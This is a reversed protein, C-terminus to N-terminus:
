GADATFRYGIRIGFTRPAALWYYRMWNLQTELQTKIRSNNELNQVYGEVWFPKSALDFRLRADTRTYGAQYDLPNEYQRYYVGGRYAFDLRPTFTGVSTELAYSASVSANWKPSRPLVNGNLNQLPSGDCTPGAGHRDGVPKFACFNTPNAASTSNDQSDFDATIETHLWGVNSRFELRDIPAWIWQLEIGYIQAEPANVTTQVNNQVETIFRNAFDYYFFTSNLRMRGDFLSNKAGLEYANITESDFSAAQFFNFGGHREGRSYGAYFLQDDLPRWEIRARGTVSSWTKEKRTGNVRFLFAANGANLPTATQSQLLGCGSSPPFGLFGCIGPNLALFGFTGADFIDLPEFLIDLYGTDRMLRSTHSYRVGADFHLQETLDVGGQLFVGASKTDVDSKFKIFPHDRDGQRFLCPGACIAQAEPSFASLGANLDFVAFNALEDAAQFGWIPVDTDPASDDQYNGGFLWDFRGEYESRITAEGSWTLHKDLLVLRQGDNDTFDQDRDIAFDWYQYNGNLKVVHGPIEWEVIAQGWFTEYQQSQARDSRVEHPSSSNPTAGTPNVGGFFITSQGPQFAPYDGLPRPTGGDDKDSGYALILDLTITETPVFRISGRVNHGGSLANNTLHQRHGNRGSVDYYNSPFERRYAIRAAGKGPYFPMNAVAGIRINEWSSYDFDGSFEWEELNPRRTRMNMSGGTSNRGFGTGQPGPLVSIDELDNFALLAVALQAVYIDNIHLQFGPDIGPGLVDSDQGLGRLTIAPLGGTAVLGPVKLQLDYADQINANELDQASFATITQAVDQISQERREATVIIEEIGKQEPAPQAAPAAQEPPAAPPAAEQASLMSAFLVAAMMSGAYGPARM